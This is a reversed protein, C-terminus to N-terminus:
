VVRSKAILRTFESASLGFSPSLDISDNAVEEPIQRRPLEISISDSALPSIANMSGSRDSLALKDGERRTSAPHSRANVITSSNGDGTWGALMQMLNSKDALLSGHQPMVDGDLYFNQEIETWTLQLMGPFGSFDTNWGWPNLLTYIQTTPDYNIVAYDHGPVIYSVTPATALTILNGAAFANALPVYDSNYVFGTTSSQVGGTITPLALAGWGGALSQYSNIPAQDTWGSSCLEAYAKEALAAWLITGSNGINQQFNAYYFQNGIEPLLNNVTVFEPTGNDYFRVTWVHVTQGDDVATGDDIFM